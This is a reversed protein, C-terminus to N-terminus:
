EEDSDPPPSSVKAKTSKGGKTKALNRASVRTGKPRPPEESKERAPPSSSRGGDVDMDDTAAEAESTDGGTEDDDDDEDDDDNVSKARKRPRKHGNAKSSTAKRKAPKREKKEKPLAATKALESLWSRTDEPLYVTRVIQKVADASPLPRLIDSPLRVKGPYTQITWSHTSARMKILEQALEAMIYLQETHSHSEADRVTKLKMALHHLLSVNDQTAILDLYFQVYKAIDFLDEHSTSFDPHHALLHLLRIFILELNELKINPPMKRKAGNVYSAALSKVDDEPDHVTLFPIVNYRPPLKRPQLLTVLKTVFEMRVNYCSDQVTVALRLFKPTIANAFVEITSLHLLAFAAQLRMRSLFKPNEEAEPNLSGNHELLTAFMKLAPTAIELANEAAGHALSRNRFLKLAQLKARLVDPVEDNEMWEEGDDMEEPDASSPVMLLKKLLFATLAESRREFAAPCYRAVQSLAAVRAGIGEFDASDASSFQDTIAEILKKAAEEKTRSHCLYRAAFKALRWSTHLSFKEIREVTRRDATALSEDWKVLGALAQLAVEVLQINKEDVLAKALEATHPKFVAPCHRAVFSLLTRAHNSAQILHGATSGHSRAVRKLLSPVSSQNIIRFSARRLFTSLTPVLSASTQDLRKLFESTAKALGKVDTQPDMCTKALKFLRNENLKAFTNLDEKAKLPDPFSAALHQSTAALRRTILDENEDIIGGNYQVCTDIFIEYINPRISKVGSLGLLANISKDTLYRMMGLLRDTWAEEDVEGKSGPSPLPLLHDAVVQEVVSRVEPLTNTIKLVEDPIWAFQKIATPDNNDIQPYAINYIKGVSNLAEIRVSHRKDLGRGAVNRLQAESVHHLAAEYDLQSYLKCVAARVKEDPDMIKDNLLGELAERSEPLNQILARCSEVVKLRIPVAKDNKRSLWVNWTNPYKRFLDSGNKIDAFMEGLVQTALLRITLDEARLEEELQPIVSDLVGPCSRHLAKILDHAKRIDDYDDEASQDTIIDNFYQCINRQLKDSARNCVETALRYAANDLGLNKDKFQALILDLADANISQSEDILAELTDVLFIEVKKPLDRRVLSFCERFILTMLKDAKPLDCVLVVSKVTSLSELLHFYENYYTSDTGKLGASLQKFFFEFIDTLEAPTYPADPAYLRLIDALCCATYAKVGREKHLLLSASILEKKATDLSKVEVHEQELAALQDHLTKLKKLLADTSLGKGTLKERFELKKRPSPQGGGHRTQAVM